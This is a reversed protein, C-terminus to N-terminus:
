RSGTSRPWDLLQRPEPRFGRGRRRLDSLAAALSPAGYGCTFGTRWNEAMDAMIRAERLARRKSLM